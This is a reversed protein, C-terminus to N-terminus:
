NFKYHNFWKDNMTFGLSLVVYKEQILNNSLTGMQGAKISINVKSVSKFIPLSMGLTVGYDNLQTSELNLFTKTYYAGFRYTINSFYNKNMYINPTFQGGVAMKMSNSLQDNEGFASFKSWDQMTLDADILLRFGVRYAMGIGFSMPLVVNGNTTSNVLTDHPTMVGGINTYRQVLSDEQGKINSNFSGILGITFSHDSKIKHREIRQKLTDVHLKGKTYNIFYYKKDSTTFELGDCNNLIVDIEKDDIKLTDKENSVIIEDVGGKEKSVVSLKNKYNYFRCSDMKFSDLTYTLGFNFYFYNVTMTNNIQTNYAGGIETEASNQINISGFLYSANAGISLNKLLKVANGFYLQNIGGTGTYNYNVLTNAGTLSDSNAIKYGTNSYPMLGFSAGWRNQIVPFGLAVYSVNTTNTINSSIGTAESKTFTSTGGFEFTTLKLDSYSAPNAFNLNFPEHVALNAGGMGQSEIFGESQLDGIGFRSYPDSSSVSQANTNVIIVALFLFSIIWKIKISSNFKTTVFKILTVFIM